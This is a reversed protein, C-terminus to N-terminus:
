TAAAPAVNCPSNSLWHAAGRTAWPNLWILVRQRVTAPVGILYAAGFGLVLMALGLAVSGSRGRAIAYLALVVCTLVLAPGLDKQLFFFGLVILM